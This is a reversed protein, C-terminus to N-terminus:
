REFEIPLGDVIKNISPLQQQIWVLVNQPNSRGAEPMPETGTLRARHTLAKLVISASDRDGEKAAPLFTKLIMDVRQLDLERNQALAVKLDEAIADHAERILQKAGAISMGMQHAVDVIPVGALRANWAGLAQTALDSGRAEVMENISRAPTEPALPTPEFRPHKRNRAWKKALQTRKEAETKM